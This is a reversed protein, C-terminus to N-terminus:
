ELRRVLAKFAETELRSGSSRAIAPSDCKCVPCATRRFFLRHCTCHLAHGCELVLSTDVSNAELCVPCERCGDLEAPELPTVNPARAKRPELSQFFAVDFEAPKLPTVGPARAKKPELSQFFAFTGFDRERKCVHSSKNMKRRRAAPLSAPYRAQALCRVCFTCLQAKSGPNIVDVLRNNKQIRMAPKRCTGSARARVDFETQEEEEPTARLMSRPLASRGVARPSPDPPYRPTAPM